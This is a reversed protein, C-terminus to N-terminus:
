LKDKVIALSLTIGERKLKLLFLGVLCIFAHIVIKQNTWQRHSTHFRKWSM